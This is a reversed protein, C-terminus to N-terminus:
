EKQKKENKRQQNVFESPTIGFQAKFAKTFYSNSNIGVMFIVESISIDQSVLLKAAKKLRISRIFEGLSNGTVSKIKKYLNTRGFGLRQCLINVNFDNDDINEDIIEILKDLFEQDKRNKVIERTSAYIDSAYKEKLLTQAELLRKIQVDLLRLSFPKPIYVDAGAETGEIQHEISSRATLLVIPIHSTHIDEKLKKCMELGDMEPMMIDSIILDPMERAAIKLGEAGNPASLVRFEHQYHELLMNRLEDNDEVILLGSLNSDQNLNQQILTSEQNQLLDKDLIDSEASHVTVEDTIKEEPRIHESGLPFGVIIETGKFRESSVHIFGQHIMVLSKVLALGIGSGLHKNAGDTIHFFRDFIQDISGASIGIGNDKIRIFTYENAQFDSEYEVQNEFTSKIKSKPASFVEMEIEGGENTFKISNSILNYIIKNMKEYDFWVSKGSGEILKLSINKQRAIDQFQQEIEKLLSFLNSEQSNMTLKGAEAKRFEILENILKLLRGANTTILDLFHHKEENSIKDSKLKELPSLILTLPTKFEHSINTFFQLKLQVLEEKRKEDAEKLKLDNKLKIWRISYHYISYIIAIILLFYIFFALSSQWWPPSIKINISVPNGSWIGDNNSADVTFTYEGYKLNSYNAFPYKSDIYKWNEDYGELMYKFKCKEPNAFHLSSFGISFDNENYKLSIRDLFNISKKLIVRNYLLQNPIVEQNFVKLSTLAVRPKIKNKVIAEPNFYNLGNIGGFYLTGNSSKYAAGIKFGNSQLGDNVDFNWFENIAPDFRSLGKGGIWLKGGNDMLMTEVDNAPCGSQTDFVTAHYQFKDNNGIGNKIIMKNLGGGLTGVWLTSDNEKVLPWTYDSSLSFKTQNSQYYIIEKLDGKSDLILRNIGLSTSAWLENYKQDYYIYSVIDSSLKKDPTSRTSYNVIQAKGDVFRIRGIGGGWIAVWIQDNSDIEIGFIASSSINNTFGSSPFFNEVSNTNLNIINLGNTTGVYMKQRHYKLSRIKRNSLSQNNLNEQSLLTCEGTRPNFINIGDDKTGIWIKGENDESIARVFAGKLSVGPKLPNEYLVGFEKQELDLYSVGGGWTGIWLCNSQDITLDSCHNASISYQDYQNHTYLTIKAHDSLPEEISLLGHATAIWLNDNPDIILRSIVLSENGIETESFFKRLPYTKLLSRIQHDQKSLSIISLNELVAIWLQNDMYEIQTVANSALKVNDTNMDLKEDFRFEGNEFTLAILGKNTGFWFRKIQDSSGDFFQINSGIANTFIPTLSAIELKLSEINLKAYYVNSITVIVLFEKQALIKTITTNNLDIEPNAVTIPLYKEDILSFAHIGGESGVWLINDGCAFATIRNNYVRRLPNTNNMFLKLQKGDFRQIGANTGLWIFGTRDQIVCTGDTHALGDNITINRFRRNTQSLSQLCILIVLFSILLTKM